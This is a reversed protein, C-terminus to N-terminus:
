QQQLKRYRLPTIGFTMKFANSFKSPNAYGVTNAVELVSKQTNLLLNVAIQMRYHRLYAYPGYGYAQKFCNKLDTENLDFKNGLEEITLHRQINQDIFLKISEVKKMTTHNFIKREHQLYEDFHDIEELLLEIARIKVMNQNEAKILEMLQNILQLIKVPTKIYLYNKRKHHAAYFVKLRDKTETLLAEMSACIDHLYCFLSISHYTDTLFELENFNNTGVFYGTNGKQISYIKEDHCRSICVGGLCYHLKFVPESFVRHTKNVLIQNIRLDSHSLYMGDLIRYLTFSGSGFEPKIDYIEKDTHSEIKTSFKTTMIENSIKDMERGM